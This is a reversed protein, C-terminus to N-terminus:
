VQEPETYASEIRKNCHECHTDPAEWNIELACVAWDNLGRSRPAAVREAIAEIIQRRNDKVCDCCM